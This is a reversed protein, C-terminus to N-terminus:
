TTTVTAAPSLTHLHRQLAHFPPSLRIAVTALLGIAGALTFILALGRGPGTGFWSGITDAGRGETMLPIAWSEAIPGCALSTVPAAATEMTLAFGFVSGQREFPVVTQLVTQEAAEIAPMLGLWVVCGITLLLISPQVTFFMCVLWNAINCLVMARLPNRGLGRRAVVMGGVIFAMSIGAWLLGWTEVSVLELGYADMLSIFVGGLLNNFAAFLILVLLGPVARVTAVAESFQSGRDARPRVVPVDEPVRITLLHVAALASVAVAIGYAWGMGLRGVVLGSFLSTIAFAVGTAAGVLGNARDRQGDPVLLSVCTSLAISRIGGAVSGALTSVVLVWFWPSRLQQVSDPGALVYTITAVVFLVATLVSSVVMAHHKRHRDVYGGFFVGLVASAAM